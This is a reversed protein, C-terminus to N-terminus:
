RVVEVETQQVNYVPALVVVQHGMKRLSQALRDVSIAVGAVSPKYNNTMMAIKM